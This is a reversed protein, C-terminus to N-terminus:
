SFPLFALFAKLRPKSAGALIVSQNLTDLGAVGIWASPHLLSSGLVLLLFCLLLLFCFFFVMEVTGEVGGLEGDWRDEIDDGLLGPQPLLFAVGLRDSALLFCVEISLKM